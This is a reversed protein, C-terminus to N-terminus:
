EARGDNGDMAAIRDLVADHAAQWAQQEAVEVAHLPPEDPLRRVMNLKRRIERLVNQWGTTTPDTTDNPM